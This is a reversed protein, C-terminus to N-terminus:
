ALCRCRFTVRSHVVKWGFVVVGHLVRVVCRLIGEGIYPQFARVDRLSLVVFFFGRVFAGFSAFRGCGSGDPLLNTTEVMPVGLFAFSVWDLGLTIYM